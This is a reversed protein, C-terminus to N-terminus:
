MRQNAGVRTKRRTRRETAQGAACFFRIIEEDSKGRLQRAQRDRIQRVMDVAHISAKEEM